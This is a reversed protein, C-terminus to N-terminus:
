THLSELQLLNTLVDKIIKPDGCKYSSFYLYWEILMAYFYKYGIAM